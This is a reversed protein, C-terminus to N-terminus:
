LSLIYNPFIHRSFEICHLGSVIHSTWDFMIFLFLTNRSFKWIKKRSNQSFPITTSITFHFCFIFWLTNWNTQFGSNSFCKWLLVPSHTIHKFRLNYQVIYMIVFSRVVTLQFCCVVCMTLITLFIEEHFVRLIVLYRTFYSSIWLKTGHLLLGNCLM